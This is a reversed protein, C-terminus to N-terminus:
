GIADLGLMKVILSLSNVVNADDAFTTTATPVSQIQVPQKIREGLQRREGTPFTAFTRRLLPLIELFITDSLEGIWNNLVAWLQEDLLLILGSERLFGDVWAGAALPDNAKSLALSMRQAVQQENLQHGNFLLRCSRGAILGHLGEQKLLQHLVEQWAHLHNSNALLKIAEDTNVLHRYM